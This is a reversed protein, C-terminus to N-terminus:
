LKVSYMVEGTPSVLDARQPKINLYREYDTAGDAHEVSKVYGYVVLSTQTRVAEIKRAVAQDEVSVFRLSEAGTFGFNIHNPNGSFYARTPEHSNGYSMGHKDQETLDRKDTFLSQSLNFGKRDFDYTQVASYKPELEFKVYRVGNIKSSEAVVMEKFKKALDIKTFGDKEAWYSHSLEYADKPFGEYDRDVSLVNILTDDSENFGNFTVYLDVSTWPQHIDLYASDDVVPLDALTTSNAEHKAISAKLADERAKKAKEAEEKHQRDSEEQMRQVVTKGDKNLNSEPEKGCGTLAGASLSLAIALALTNKGLLM